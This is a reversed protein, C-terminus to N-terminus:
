LKKSNEHRWNSIMLAPLPCIRLFVSEWKGLVQMLAFAVEDNYSVLASCGERLDRIKAQSSPFIKLIRQIWGCSEHSM